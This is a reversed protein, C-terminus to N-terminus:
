RESDKLPRNNMRSPKTVERVNTRRKRGKRGGKEGKDAMRSGMVRINGKLLPRKSSLTAFKQHAEFTAKLHFFQAERSVKTLSDVPRVAAPKKGVTIPSIWPPTFAREETASSAVAGVVVGVRGRSGKASRM